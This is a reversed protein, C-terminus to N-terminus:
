SKLKSGAGFWWFMGEVILPWVGISCSVWCLALLLLSSFSNVGPCLTLWLASSPRLKM